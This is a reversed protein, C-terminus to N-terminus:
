PFTIGPIYMHLTDHQQINNHSEKSFKKFRHSVWNVCTVIM